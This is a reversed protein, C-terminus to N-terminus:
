RNLRHWLLVTAALSAVAIGASIVAMSTSGSLAATTALSGFLLAIGFAVWFLLVQLLPTAPMEDNARPHRRRRFFNGAIFLYV